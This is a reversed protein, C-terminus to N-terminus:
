SELRWDRMPPFMVQCRTLVTSAQVNVFAPRSPPANGTITKSTMSARRSSARWVAGRGWALGVSVRSGDAQVGSAAGGRGIVTDGDRVWVREGNIEKRQPVADRDKAPARSTWLEYRESIHTDVDIIKLGALIDSNDVATHNLWWGIM